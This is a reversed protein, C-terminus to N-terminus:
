EACNNTDDSAAAAPHLQVRSRSRQDSSSGDRPMYAGGCLHDARPLINRTTMVCGMRLRWGLRRRIGSMGAGWCVIRFCMSRCHWGRPRQLQHARGQLTGGSGPIPPPWDCSCRALFAAPDGHRVSRRRTTPAVIQSWLARRRATSRPHTTFM